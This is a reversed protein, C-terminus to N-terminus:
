FILKKGPEKMYYHNCAHYHDCIMLFEQNSLSFLFIKVYKEKLLLHFGYENKILSFTETEKVQIPKLTIM